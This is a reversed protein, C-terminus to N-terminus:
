IPRPGRELRLRVLKCRLPLAKLPSSLNLLIERGGSAHRPPPPMTAPFSSRGAATSSPGEVGVKEREVWQGNVDAHSTRGFRRPVQRSERGWKVGLRLRAHDFNETAMEEHGPSRSRVFLLPLYPNTTVM